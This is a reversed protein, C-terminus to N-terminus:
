KGSSPLDQVKDGLVTWLGFGSQSGRKARLNVRYRQNPAEGMVILWGNRALEALTGDLDDLKDSFKRHLSDRTIGDVEGGQERLLSLMLHKQDPPLDTIDLPTIGGPEEGGLQANLQDYLGPM